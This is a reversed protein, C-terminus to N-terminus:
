VSVPRDRTHDVICYFGFPTEQENRLQHPELPGIYAIDHPRITRCTGSKFLVGLGRVGIIVHEHLHRELSSYGGAGIEFYRLDFATRTGSGGILEIRKMGSFDTAGEPKYETRERGDWNFEDFRLIDNVANDRRDAPRYECSLGCPEEPPRREEGFHRRITEMFLATSGCHDSFRGLLAGGILLVAEEGYVAAAAGIRELRMGGAPAPFARRVPMDCTLAAAIAACEGRSFPFRGGWSPFISIDAGFLRFLTGLFLAPTIGHSPSSFLTGTFSPHAMIMVRYKGALYRAMDFGVLNPALLIGRVGNRVALQVQSEIQNFPACINPFYLTTRGTSANAAAIADTVRCIREEFPHFHQDTIGHDDKIIDIGGRACAGATKALEACSLGLPKLATSLLPRRYIGLLQRIGDIGRLPGNFAAICIEPLDLGVIKIGNKLSINGFLTNLFQPISCVAIDNRYRMAVRFARGRVAVISDITGVIGTEFHRDPISEHPLEVTQEEAISQAFVEPSVGSPPTIIYTVTFFSDSAM